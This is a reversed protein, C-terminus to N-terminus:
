MLRCLGITKMSSMWVFSNLKNEKWCGDSLKVEEIFQTHTVRADDNIANDHCASCKACKGEGRYGAFTCLPGDASVGGGPPRHGEWLLGSGLSQAQVFQVSGDVDNRVDHAEGVLGNPATKEPFWYCMSTAYYTQTDPNRENRCAHGGAITEM